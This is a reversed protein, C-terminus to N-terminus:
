PAIIALARAQAVAHARRDVNLKRYVNSVHTKVTNPTLTLARAIEKYSAGTALHELVDRERATLGLAAIAKDNAVFPDGAGTRPTLRRAVWAGLGAFVVAIVLVYVETAVAGALHRTEVWQIFGAAAALALAYLVITRLM